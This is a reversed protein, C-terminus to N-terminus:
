LCKEEVRTEFDFNIETAGAKEWKNLIQLFGFPLISLMSTTAAVVKPLSPFATQLATGDRRESLGQLTIELLSLDGQKGLQAVFAKAQEPSLIIPKEALPHAYIGVTKCPYIKVSKNLNIKNLASM